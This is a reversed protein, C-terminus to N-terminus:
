AFRSVSARVAFTAVGTKIVSFAYADVSNVSGATPAAGGQWTPTVANGDIQFATQYYATTGNTV